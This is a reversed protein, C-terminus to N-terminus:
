DDEKDNNKDGKASFQEKFKDDFFKEADALTAKHEKGDAGFTLM